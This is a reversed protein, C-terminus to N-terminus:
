EAHHNQSEYINQVYLQEKTNSLLTGNHPYVIQKVMRQSFSKTELKPSNHSFSSHFKHVLRQMSGRM